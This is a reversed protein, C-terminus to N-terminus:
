AKLERGAKIIEVVNHFVAQLKADNVLDRKAVAEVLAIAAVLVADYSRERSDEDKAHRADDVAMMLASLQALLTLLQFTNM